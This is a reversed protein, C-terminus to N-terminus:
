PRWRKGDFWFSGDNKAPIFMPVTPQGQERILVGCGPQWDPRTVYGALAEDMTHGTEFGWARQVSNSRWVIAARHTHAHAINYPFFKDLHAHATYGAKSRVTLGHVTYTDHCIRYPEKKTKWGYQGINTIKEFTLESLGYLGKAVTQLYKDWRLDHNGPIFTRKLPAPIAKDTDELWEIGADLEKQLLRGDEGPGGRVWRSLATMDFLDGVQHVESFYRARDAIMNCMAATLRRHHFPIQPDPWLLILDTM